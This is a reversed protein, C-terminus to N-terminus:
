GEKKIVIKGTKRNVLDGASNLMFYPHNPSIKISKLSKCGYFADADIEEVSDPIEVSELSKCYEFAWAGIKKLNEPLKVSKLSRCNYFANEGIEEVSDSVEISELSTCSWFAEDGIEKLNKPLKLTKIENYKIFEGFSRNLTTMRNLIYDLSFCEPSILSQFFLKLIPKDSAAEEWVISQQYMEDFFTQFDGQELLKYGIKDLFEKLKM